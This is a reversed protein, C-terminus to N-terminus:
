YTLGFGYKFLPDYDKDGVNIPIQQMNKPWTHPLKGTPKYNGLLVDAVGAGESGPLWAAVFADCKDIISTIIMPRGSILVAIVPKGSAHAKEIVAEDEKSISLDKRDGMTEAYPLEGIVAICVDANGLESADESYTIKTNAPVSNQLAELITTGGTIVKGPKGQWSITWGGCQIGIDNAGKGVIAINKIDKSIPLASNNNKLLVLSERVAQRAVERNEKSGIKALLTKDTFPHNYLDMELKVKLIRKAADDIRAMPVKGEKVLETLLTVFEIYNNKQGIGNPIMVMDIGANISEEICNKYDNSLQDIAAWDSVIFGEFKMENKLVDTMLYKNAHMKKGNWSSYSAMVSKVGAKIAEEYSPLFLKRFTAEDCETNGQDTGNTTGGDGAFHKACALVSTANSLDKSQMGKVYAYGLEEALKSDEGFSEYTRGWRENRAVALCPAFDWQIGTGRIEEATVKAVKEVLKSDRTAGLGINHPFIVAGNVNNHGHVADIGWIIPTKLRSTLAVGQLEDFIKAWGAPTVDDPESDGGCLISGISYKKIDDLNNKIAIYDVQTMQGIKEELTMQRLLEEAKKDMQERKEKPSCFVISVSFVAIAILLVPIHKTM